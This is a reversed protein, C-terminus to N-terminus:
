PKSRLFEALCIAAMATLSQLRVCKAQYSHALSVVIAGLSTLRFVARPSEAKAEPTEVVATPEKPPLKAETFATTSRHKGLTVISPSNIFKPSVM